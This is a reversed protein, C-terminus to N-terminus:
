LNIVTSPTKGQSELHEKGVEGSVETSGLGRVKLHNPGMSSVLLLHLVFAFHERGHSKRCTVRPHSNGQSPKLEWSAARELSSGDQGEM